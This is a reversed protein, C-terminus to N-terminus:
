SNVYVRDFQASNEFFSFLFNPQFSNTVMENGPDRTVAFDTHRSILTVTHTGVAEGAQNANGSDLNEFAYCFQPFSLFFYNGSDARVLGRAAARQDQNLGGADASTPTGDANLPPDGVPTLTLEPGAVGSDLYIANRQLVKFSAPLSTFGTFVEPAPEVSTEEQPLQPILVETNRGMGDREALPNEAIVPAQEVEQNSFVPENPLEAFLGRSQLLNTESFVVPSRYSPDESVRITNYSQFIKYILLRLYNGGNPSSGDLNPLIEQQSLEVAFRRGDVVVDYIQKLGILGESGAPDAPKLYRNGILNNLTSRLNMKGVKYFLSLQRSKNKIGLRKRDSISFQITADLLGESELLYFEKQKKVRGIRFQAPLPTYPNNVAFCVPTIRSTVTVEGNRSRKSSVHKVFGTLKLDLASLGLTVGALTVATKVNSFM